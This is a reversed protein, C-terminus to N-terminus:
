IRFERAIEPTLRRRKLLWRLGTRVFSDKTRNGAGYISEPNFLYIAGYFPLPRLPHGLNKMNEAIYAHVEYRRIFYDDFDKSYDPRKPFPALDTRIIHSSGCEEYFRRRPYLWRSGAAMRYGLDFCWGAEGAHTAVYAALRNSVLDDGDLFMVYEGMGRALSLGYLLKRGKDSRLQFLAADTTLDEEPTISPPAFPASIFECQRPLDELQPVEHCVVLVRIDPETQATASHITRELLRCATRWDRSVRRSKFPIVFTLM